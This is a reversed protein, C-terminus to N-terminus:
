SGTSGGTSGTSGTAGTTTTVECTQPFDVIYPNPLTKFNRGTEKRVGGNIRDRVRLIYTPTVSGSEVVLNDFVVEGNDDTYGTGIKRRPTPTDRRLKVYTRPVPVAEVSADNSCSTVVKVTLDIKELAPETLTVTSATCLNELNAGITGIQQDTAIDFFTLVTRHDTPMRALVVQGGTSGTPRYLRTKSLKKRGRSDLVQVRVRARNPYTNGTSDQVNITNNCRKSGARYWDLNFFTLHDTTFEVKFLNNAVDAPEQPQVTGNDQYSWKGTGADFSWIPLTEGVQVTNGTDPNVTQDSISMTVPVAPDFNKVQNGNEDAIQISTFGGSLFSVEGNSDVAGTTGTNNGPIANPNAIAVNFGGPFAELSEDSDADYFATTLTVDGSVPNGSADTMQVAGGITISASEEGAANNANATVGGTIRGNESTVAVQNLSVGTPQAGAATSVLPIELDADGTATIELPQNSSVFENASASVLVNVPADTSPAVSDLMSFFATDTTADLTEAPGTFNAAGETITITAGPIPDLTNADVAQVGLTTVAGAEVTPQLTTSNNSGFCGTLAALMAASVGLVVIRKIVM